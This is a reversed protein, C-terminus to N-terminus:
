LLHSPLVEITYVAYKLLNAMNNKQGKGCCAPVSGSTKKPSSSMLTLHSMCIMNFTPCEPPRSRWSIIPIQM